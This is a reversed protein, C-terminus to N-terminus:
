INSLDNHFSRLVGFLVMDNAFIAVMFATPLDM